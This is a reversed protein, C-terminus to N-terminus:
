RTSIDMTVEFGYRLDTAQPKIWQSMGPEQFTAANKPCFLNTTSCMSEDAGGARCGRVM